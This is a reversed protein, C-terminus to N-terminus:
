SIKQETQLRHPSYKLFPLLAVLKEAATQVLIGQCALLHMSIISVLSGSALGEARSSSSQLQNLTLAMPEKFNRVM